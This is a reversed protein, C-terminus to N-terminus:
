EKLRQQVAFEEDLVQGVISSRWTEALSRPSRTSTASPTNRAIGTKRRSEVLNAQSVGGTSSNESSQCYLHLRLFAEQILDEADERSEGRRPPVEETSSHAAKGAEM